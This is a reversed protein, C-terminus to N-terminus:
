DARGRESRASNVSNTQENMWVSPGDSVTISSVRAGTCMGALAHSFEHLAVTFIKFPWLIYELYPMHWLVLIAGSYIAILYLTQLQAESPQLATSISDTTTGNSVSQFAAM